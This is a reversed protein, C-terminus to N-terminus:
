FKILDGYIAQLVKEENEWTYHKAAKKLNEKWLPIRDSNLAENLKEAIHEPNHNEIEMGIEFDSM